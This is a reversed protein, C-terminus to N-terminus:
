LKKPLIKIKLLEIFEEIGVPKSFYYGQGMPCNYAKLFSLQAENEIGEAITTLELGEALKIISKVIIGGNKNDEIENTFEKDIKLSSIPLLRLWTMSSYGTGFDDISIRSGLNNIETLKEGLLETDKMISTETLEFTFQQADVSRSKFTEKVLNIFDDGQLQNPSLNLHIFIKSNTPNIFEKTDSIAKQLIWKGLEPMLGSEEAVTIFEEPSVNQLLPSDTRCLVEAAIIQGTELDVVPQYALRFQNKLLSSRVGEEILIYHQHSVNLEESFYCYTNKGNEKSNYMAIDANKCLESANKGAFPYCAIGISVGIQVEINDKLKFPKNLETIIRGAVTGSYETKMLTTIVISFEDGGLRSILYTDGIRDFLDHTRLCSKIRSSVSILLQDGAAHGYCDNVNKFNDLDMFIVAIYSSKNEASKLEKDLFENFDLRNALGTVADLRALTNLEKNSDKLSDKAHALEDILAQMKHRQNYNELFVSVKSRLIVEDVPKFLYDVAGAEHGKHIYHEEKNIATVFIIPISSLRKNNRMLNAMEFGDMEPMQVDLLILAFDHQTLLHLGDKASGATIVNVTLEELITELALLNKSNDDVILINPTKDINNSINMKNLSKSLQHSKM